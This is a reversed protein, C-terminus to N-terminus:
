NIEFAFPHTNKIWANPKGNWQEERVKQPVKVPYYITYIMERSRYGSICRTCKM